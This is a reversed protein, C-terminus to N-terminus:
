VYRLILQMYNIQMLRFSFVNKSKRTKKNRLIISITVIILHICCNIIIIITSLYYYKANKNLTLLIKNNIFTEQLIERM